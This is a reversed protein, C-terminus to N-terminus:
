EESLTLRPPHAQPTPQAQLTPKARDKSEATSREPHVPPTSREAESLVFQPTPAASLPVPSGSPRPSAQQRPERRSRKEGSLVFQLPPTHEPHPAPRRIVELCDGFDLRNPANM